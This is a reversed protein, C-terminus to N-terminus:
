LRIGVKRRRQTGMRLPVVRSDVATFRDLVTNYAGYLLTGSTLVINGVFKDAFAQVTALIAATLKGGDEQAGEGMPPLCLAPRTKPRKTPWYPRSTVQTPLMESANAGSVLVPWSVLPLLINQTINQGDIHLYDIGNSVSSNVLTYATDMYVAIETMFVLDSAWGSAAVKLHLTNSYQDGSGPRDFVNVIRIVDNLAPPMKLFGIRTVLSGTLGNPLRPLPM